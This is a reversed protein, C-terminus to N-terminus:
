QGILEAAGAFTRRLYHAPSRTAGAGLHEETAIRVATMALAAILRANLARNRGSPVRQDIAEAIALEWTLFEANARADVAPISSRLEFDFLFLERTDRWAEAQEIFANRIATLADEDDPQRGLSDLVRQLAGEHLGVVYSSEKSDFYRFFTSRSVEAAECIDEVRVADFGQETVL